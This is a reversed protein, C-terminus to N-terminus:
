TECVGPTGPLAAAIALGVALGVVVAAPWAWLPRRPTRFGWLGIALYLTVGVSWAIWEHHVDRGCLSTDITIAFAAYFAVFATAVALGLAGGITAAGGSSRAVTAFAAAFLLWLGAAIAWHEALTVLPAAVADALLVLVALPRLAARISRHADV